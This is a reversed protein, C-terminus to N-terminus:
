FRLASIVFEQGESMEVSVREHEAPAAGMAVARLNSYELWLGGTPNSGVLERKSLLHKVL